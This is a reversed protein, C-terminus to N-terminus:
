HQIPRADFCFFGASLTPLAPAPAQRLLQDDCRPLPPIMSPFFPPANSVLCIEAMWMPRTQKSVLTQRDVCADGLAAGVGGGGVQRGRGVSESAVRAPQEHEGSLAVDVEGMQCHIFPAVGKDRGDKFLGGRESGLVLDGRHATGIRVIEKHGPHIRIARHLPDHCAVAPGNGPQGGVPRASGVDHEPRALFHGEHILM